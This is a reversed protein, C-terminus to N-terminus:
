TMKDYAWKVKILCPALSSIKKYILLKFKLSFHCKAQFIDFYGVRQKSLLEYYTKVDAFVERKCNISPFYLENKAELVNIYHLMRKARFIVVDKKFNLIGGYTQNNHQRYYYLCDDVYKINQAYQKIMLSFWVDEFPLDEPMPFIKDGISRNFSWLWRPLSILKKLCSEFSENLFQRNVSYNGIVKLSQSTIFGDHCMADYEDLSCCNFFKDSLVDDADICKIIDGNSLTYGYNLGFVKGIGENRFVRIRSDKRSYENAIRFTDDDSHDEIIILEWCKYDAQMLADLAESIYETANKAPM